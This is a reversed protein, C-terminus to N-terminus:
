SLEINNELALELEDVKHEIVEGHKPMTLFCKFPIKCINSFKKCNQSFFLLKRFFNLSRWKLNTKRRLIKKADGSPGCISFFYQSGQFTCGSLAKIKKSIPKKNEPNLTINESSWFPWIKALFSFKSFSLGSEKRM